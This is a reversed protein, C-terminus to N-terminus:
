LTFMSEGGGWLNAQDSGIAEWNRPQQFWGSLFETLNLKFSGKWFLIDMPLMFFQVETLSCLEICGSGLHSMSWLM